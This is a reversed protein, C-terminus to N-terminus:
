GAVRENYDAIAANADRQAQRLAAKASQGQALMRVFAARVAERVGFYDGIVSGATTVDDPGSSLQEYPVRLWPKESWLQQLAPDDLASVRIPIYGGQSSVALEAVQEPEVLFKILQWAAAQKAPSGSAPIWLSGDGVPVGGGPQLAPLPWVGVTTGAFEGSSLVAEIPGLAGSAEITIAADGTGLALLHDISGATGGTDLALGSRVMDDWWTWIKRGRRTDITSRTARSKRGNGNNVYELGSKAYLFEMVFPEIHLAMGHPAVGADVIQKSYSRLEDFTAPPQDPDIGAAEVLPRNFIVVPNSVVWPMSRLVGETTYYAISRPLFDSLDYDDAKVCAEIPVTSQSDVLQQVTTEEFQAVDPLDGTTLGARYKELLDPYTTQNVAQVDINPNQAEFEAILNLLVDESAQQGQVYWFRLTVAQKAKLADVPCRPGGGRNVSPSAPAALVTVLAFGAILAGRRRATATSSRM